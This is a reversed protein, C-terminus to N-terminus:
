SQSIIAIENLFPASRSDQRGGGVILIQGGFSVASHTTRDEWHGDLQIEEPPVTRRAKMDYVILGKFTFDAEGGYILLKNILLSISSHSRPESGSVQALGTWRPNDDLTLVFLDNQSHPELEEQNLLIGGYVYMSDGEICSCHLRRARPPRGKVNLVSWISTSVSFLLVNSSFSGGFMVFSDSREHYELTQGFRKTINRSVGQGYVQLVETFEVLLIDFRFMDNKQSGGFLYLKDGVLQLEHLIRRGPSIDTHVAAWQMTELDLVHFDELVGEARAVGGYVFLKSSVLACDMGYVCMSTRSQGGGETTRVNQWNLRLKQQIPTTM